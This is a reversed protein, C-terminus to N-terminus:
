KPWVNKLCNPHDWNSLKDNNIIIKKEINTLNNRSILISDSKIISEICNQQKM